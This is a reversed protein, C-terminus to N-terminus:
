FIEAGIGKIRYITRAETISKPDFEKGQEEALHEEWGITEELTLEIKEIEGEVLAKHGKSEMPFVIEGDIVKVKISEGQKDGALEIWCGRMACVDTVIGEVKVKKGVFENPTALITSIKEQKDLTLASGYKKADKQETKSESKQVQNEQKESACAILFAFLIISLFKLKNEM